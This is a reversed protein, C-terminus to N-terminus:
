DYSKTETLSEAINWLEKSNFSNWHVKINFSNWDISFFVQQAHFEFRDTNRYRVKFRRISYCSITNKVSYLYTAINRKYVKHILQDLINEKNQTAWLM